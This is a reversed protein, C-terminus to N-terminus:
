KSRNESKNPQLGIIDGLPYVHFQSMSLYVEGKAGGMYASLFWSKVALKGAYM